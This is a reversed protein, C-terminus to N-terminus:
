SRKPVGTADAGVERALIEREVDDLDWMGGVVLWGREANMLHFRSTKKDRTIRLGISAARLDLPKASM